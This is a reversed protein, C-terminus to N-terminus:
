TTFLCQQHFDQSQRRTKHSDEHSFLKFKMTETIEPDSPKRHGQSTGIWMPVCRVETTSNDCGLNLCNTNCVVSNHHSLGSRATKERKKGRKVKCHKIYCLRCPIVENKVALGRHKNLEPCRPAAGATQHMRNDCIHCFCVSAPQPTQLEVSVLVLIDCRPVADSADRGDQNELVPLPLLRHDTGNLVGCQCHRHLPEQLGRVLNNVMQQSLDFHCLSFASIAIAYLVRKTNRQNKSIIATTTVFYM